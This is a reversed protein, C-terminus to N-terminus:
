EFLKYQTSHTHSPIKKESTKERERETDRRTTLKQERMEETKKMLWPSNNQKMPIVTHFFHLMYSPANAVPVSLEGYRHALRAAFLTLALSPFFLLFHFTFSFYHLSLTFQETMGTSQSCSPKVLLIKM